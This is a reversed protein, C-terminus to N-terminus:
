PTRGSTSNETISAQWEEIWRELMMDSEQQVEGSGYVEEQNERCTSDSSPTQTRDVPEVMAAAIPSQPSTKPRQVDERSSPSAPQAANDAPFPQGTTRSPGPNEDSDSVTRTQYSTNSEASRASLTSRGFRRTEISAQSSSCKLAETPAGDPKPHLGTVRIRKVQHNWPYTEIPLPVNDSLITKYIESPTVPLRFSGHRIRRNPTSEVVNTAIPQTSSPSPVAFNRTVSRATPEQLSGPPSPAKDCIALAPSSPRKLVFTKKERPKAPTPQSSSAHSTNQYFEILRSVRQRQPPKEMKITGQSTATALELSSSRRYLPIHTGDLCLIYQRTLLSLAPNGPKPHM